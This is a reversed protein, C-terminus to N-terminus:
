FNRRGRLDRDYGLRVNDGGRATHTGGRTDYTHLYDQMDGIRGIRGICGGGDRTGQGQRVRRVDVPADEGRRRRRGSRPSPQLSQHDTHAGQGLGPPPPMRDFPILDHPLPPPALIFMPALQPAM